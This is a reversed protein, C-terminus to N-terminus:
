LINVAVVTKMIVKIIVTKNNVCTLKTNLTEYKTPLITSKINCVNATDIYAWIEFHM